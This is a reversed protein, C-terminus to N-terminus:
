HFQSGGQSEVMIASTLLAFELCAMVMIGLAAVGRQNCQEIYGSALNQKLEPGLGWTPRSPKWEKVEDDIVSLLCVQGATM